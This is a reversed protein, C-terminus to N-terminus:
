PLGGQAKRKKRSSGNRGPRQSQARVRESQVWLMRVSTLSRIRLGRLREDLLQRDDGRVSIIGALWQLSLEGAGLFVLRRWFDAVVYHTVLDGKSTEAVTECVAVGQMNARFLAAFLLPEGDAFGGLTQLRYGWPTVARNIDGFAVGGDLRRPAAQVADGVVECSSAFHLAEGACEGDARAPVVSHDHRVLVYGSGNEWLAGKTATPIKSLPLAAANVDSYEM